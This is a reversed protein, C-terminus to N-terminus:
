LFSQGEECLVTEYLSHNECMFLYWVDILESSKMTKMEGHGKQVFTTLIRHIEIALDAFSRPSLRLMRTNLFLRRDTTNGEVRLIRETMAQMVPRFFKKYLPSELTWVQPNKIPKVGLPGIRKIVGLNELTDLYTEIQADSLRYRNQIDKVSFKFVLLYFFAYYKPNAVFFTEQELSLHEDSYALADTSDGLEKLSVGLIDLIAYLRELSLDEQNLNRKITAESVGLAQGLSQYTIKRQKLM